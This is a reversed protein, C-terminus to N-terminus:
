GGLGLMRRANGRVVKEVVEDDLGKMLRQATEKCDPWVTDAHPYDTEYCVNDVGVADLSDVGHEDDFFSCYVNTRFYHSPPEPVTGDRVENWARHQDWVKDMRELMYPVWGIQCEAFYLKLDPFRALNGSFLWDTLSLAANLQLLSNVVAGPADQSTTVMKSGSGIHMAILTGTEECARFFDDWHGSHISPLELNPPMESFSVAPVGRAANRRVEEVALQPDWLPVICLPVLRGDSAGCWEEVMWDNYARVCLLALDKDKADLFTQGCFRVFMNPFCMSAEIGAVDMDELRAGPEYCGPRMEDFTIPVMRVDDLDFGVAAAPRWSPSELDEYVWVDSPQGDDTVDYDLEGSRITLNGLRQRVIRPGVDRYKSPLRDRWLNPPEVVHDDPSVILPFSTM